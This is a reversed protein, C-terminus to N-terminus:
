WSGISNSHMLWGRRFSQNISVNDLCPLSNEEAQRSPIAKDHYLYSYNDSIVGPGTWLALLSSIQSHLSGSSSILLSITDVQACSKITLNGAM